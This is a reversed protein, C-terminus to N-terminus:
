SVDYIDIFNDFILYMKIIVFVMSSMIPPHCKISVM